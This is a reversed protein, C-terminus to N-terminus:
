HAWLKLTVSKLNMVAGHPMKTAKVSLTYRGAKEISITNVDRTVFTEWGGTNEVKGLCSRDGM